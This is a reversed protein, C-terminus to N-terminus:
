KQHENSKIHTNPEQDSPLIMNCIKCWRISIQNKELINVLNENKITITNAIENSNNTSNINKASNGLNSQQIIDHFIKEKDKKEEESNKTNFNSIEKEGSNQSNYQNNYSNNNINEKSINNDNISNNLTNNTNNIVNLDEPVVILQSQIYKGNSETKVLYKTIKNENTKEQNYNNVLEKMSNSRLARLLRKRIEENEEENNEVKKNKDSTKNGSNTNSKNKFKKKKKKKKKKSKVFLYDIDSFDTDNFVIFSKSKKDEYEQNGLNNYLTIDDEFNDGIGSSNNRTIITNTTISNITGLSNNFNNIIGGTTTTRSSKKNKNM